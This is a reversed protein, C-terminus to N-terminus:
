RGRAAEVFQRMMAADKEGPATEVGSSVDLLAPRLGDVAAGVTQADLGGALGWRLPLPAGRLVDWDFRTGHGGRQEEGAPAKADLLLWDAAGSFETALKVEDPTSVPVAKVVTLETRAGIEAVRPLSESGHLQIHTFGAAAIGDVLADDADVTVAVTPVDVGAILEAARALSVRRSSRAEVIFGLWDAGAAVADAVDAKRTLGCIKILTGM